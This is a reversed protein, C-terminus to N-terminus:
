GPTEGELVGVYPLNRYRGAFDLGYGIVFKDPITFGLFDVKTKIRARAPKYLLACLGLSAPNKARLLQMVAKATLGTDIIDEVLLVHKGRIPQTLDFEFRVSGSSVTGSGYSSVRLFDFTVDVDLERSLDSLFLVCGKLVGVLVLSKGRYKSNIEKGLERIRKRLRTQSILVKIDSTKKSARKAM